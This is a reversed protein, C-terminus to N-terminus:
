LPWKQNKCTKILNCTAGSGFFNVTEGFFFFFLGFFKWLLFFYSQFFSVHKVTCVEKPIITCEPEPKLRSNITPSINWIKLVIKFSRQKILSIWHLTLHLHDGQYWPPRTDAIHGTPFDDLNKAARTKKLLLKKNFIVQFKSEVQAFLSVGQRWTVINRQSLAWPEWSRFITSTSSSCSSSPPSPSHPPCSM